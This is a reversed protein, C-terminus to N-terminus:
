VQLRLLIIVPLSDAEIVCIWVAILSLGHATFGLRQLEAKVIM